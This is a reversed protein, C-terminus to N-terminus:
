LSLFVSLFTLFPESLYTNRCVKAAILQNDPSISGDARGLGNFGGIVVVTATPIFILEGALMAWDDKGLGRIMHRSHIRLLVVVLSLACLVITVVILTLQKPQFDM